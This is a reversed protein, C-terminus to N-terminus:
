NFEPGDLHFDFLSPSFYLDLNSNRNYKTQFSKTGMIKTQKFIGEKKTILFDFCFHLNSAFVKNQPIKKGESLREVLVYVTDCDVNGPQKTMKQFIQM